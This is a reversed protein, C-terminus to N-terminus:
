SGAVVADLHVLGAVGFQLTVPLTHAATVGQVGTLRVTPGSGGFAVTTGAPLLIGADQMSGNDGSAVGTLVGRGANPTAVFDLHEPTTEGNHVTMTLTGNGAADLHAVASTVDLEIDRGHVEVRGPTDASATTTATAATAAHQSSSHGCAAAGLLLACGAVAYPARRGALLGNM